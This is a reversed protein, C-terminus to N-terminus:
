LLLHNVDSRFRARAKEDEIHAGLRDCLEGVNRAQKLERKIVVKAIPGIHEALAREMAALDDDALRLRAGLSSSGTDSPGRGRRRAEAATRLFQEREAADPISEALSRCLTDFDAHQRVAREVLVRAIPGIHRVLAKEVASLASPDHAPATATPQAPSPQPPSQPRPPSPFAQTASVVTASVVVTRDAADPQAAAGSAPASAAARLAAAMAAASPFRQDRDKALARLVVEEIAPTVGPVRGLIPAPPENLVKYIVETYSKGPFPKGGTLLEYLVAGTSFLDCRGDVPDGRCAEPAMYSPSGIASGDRTLGSTDLRSVGFDAVKVRGDHLLIINAPKVDRHVIGLGHACDLGDLVQGIIHVARAVDFREGRDLRDLLTDGEVFEMAIFPNGEHEAFDYVAVINPHLCRGAAQAERRFREMYEAADRSGLLDARILKLAVPRDIAPDHGRYVVGMAGQGVIGEVRYRGVFEPVAVSSM